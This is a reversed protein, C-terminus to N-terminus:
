AGVLIQYFRFEDNRDPAPENDVLTRNAANLRAWVGVERRWEEQVAIAQASRLRLRHPERSPGSPASLRDDRPYNLREGVPSLLPRGFADRPPPPEFAQLPPGTLAGLTLCFCFLGQSSGKM